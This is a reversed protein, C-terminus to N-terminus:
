HSGSARHSNGMTGSSGSSGSTPANHLADEYVMREQKLGSNFDAKAQKRCNAKAQATEKACNRLAVDYDNALRKKKLQFDELAKKQYTEQTGANSSTAAHASVTASGIFVSALIFCVKRNM